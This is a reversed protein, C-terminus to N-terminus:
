QPTGSDAENRLNPVSAQAAPKIAAFGFGNKRIPMCAEGDGIQCKVYNDCKVQLFRSFSGKEIDPEPFSFVKQRYRFFLV